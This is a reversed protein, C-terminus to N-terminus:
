FELALGAAWRDDSLVFSQGGFDDVSSTTVEVFLSTTNIGSDNDMEAALQPDLADLRLMIGASLEYGWTGGRGRSGTNTSVDGVGDTIWWAYWALGAKAYPVLPMWRWRNAPWDFRYVAFLANPLINFDTADTARAGGTFRGKGHAQWYGSALGVGASGFGHWLQRDLQFRWMLTRNDAFVEGYPRRVGGPVVTLGAESDVAPLYPGAKLELAWLQETELSAAQAALPLALALLAGSPGASACGGTESGGAERYLDFFDRVPVPAATIHPSDASENGVEDQARVFVEYLVDNKLDEIRASQTDAGEVTIDDFGATIAAAERSFVKYRAVDAASSKDWRVL